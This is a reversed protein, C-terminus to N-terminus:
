RRRRGAVLGGLGLLAMASPAPIVNITASGLSATGADNATAGTNADVVELSFPSGATMDLNLVGAGDVTVTFSGIAAGLESGAAPPFIGPIVLQGFVVANYNGNGAYGGDTNFASWAAAGWSMDQVVGADGSAAIGFSGGLLHTGTSADGYATVTFTAAGGTTDVTMTSPVLTLSFDQAAAATALGALAAIAITKM